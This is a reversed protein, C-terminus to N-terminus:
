DETDLIKIYSCTYCIDGWDKRNFLIYISKGAGTASTVEKLKDFTVEVKDKRNRYFEITDKKAFDIANSLKKFIAEKGNKTNYKYLEM